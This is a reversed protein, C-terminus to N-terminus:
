SSLRMRATALDTMRQRLSDVLAQHTAWEGLARGAQVAADRLTNRTDVIQADLEALRADDVDAPVETNSGVVVAADVVAAPRSQKVEVKTAPTLPDGDPAKFYETRGDKRDLELAAKEILGNAVARTVNLESIIEPRSVGESRRALKLVYDMHAAYIATDLRPM